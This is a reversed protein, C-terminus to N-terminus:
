TKHGFDRHWTLRLHKPETSQGGGKKAASRTVRGSGVGATSQSKKGKEGKKSKDQAEPNFDDENDFDSYPIPFEVGDFMPEINRQMITGKGVHSPSSSGGDSDDDDGDNDDEDDSGHDILAEFCADHVVQLYEKCKATINLPEIPKGHFLASAFSM